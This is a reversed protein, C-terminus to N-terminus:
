APLPERGFSELPLPPMRGYADIVPASRNRVGAHRRGDRSYRARLGRANAGEDFILLSSL